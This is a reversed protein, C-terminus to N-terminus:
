GKGLHIRVLYKLLGEPHTLLDAEPFYFGFKKWMYELNSQMSEAMHDDFLSRRVDWEELDDVMQLVIKRMPRQRSCQIQCESQHLFYNGDSHVQMLMCRNLVGDHWGYSYASCWAKKMAALQGFCSETVQYNGPVPHKYIPCLAFGAFCVQSTSANDQSRAAPADGDDSATEWGSEDEEIDEADGSELAAAGKQM